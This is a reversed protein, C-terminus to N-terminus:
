KVATVKGTTAKGDWELRYFYVHSVDRGVALPVRHLGASQWDNVVRAIQRGLVDFLRLQVTGARPLTYHVAPQAGVVSWVRVVPESGSERDPAAAVPEDLTRPVLPWSPHTENIGPTDTVKTMAGTQVDVIAVDAKSLHNGALISLDVVCRLGDRSWSKSAENEPTNTIQTVGTGDANMVFLDSEGCTACFADTYLIRGGDPSWGPIAAEQADDTLKRVDSGDRNMMYIAYHGSRNSAFAVRTGDPSWDPAIDSAPNDTLRRENTGDVNIIFLDSRGGFRPSQFILETGDPSWVANYDAYANFTVRRKESGDLNMVWIEGGPSRGGRTWAIKKGDRSWGAFLDETKDNTLNRPNSGDTEMLWIDSQGGRDSEFLILGDGPKAGASPALTLIALITGLLAARRSPNQLVHTM